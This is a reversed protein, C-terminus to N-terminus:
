LARARLWGAIDPGLPLPEESLIYALFGDLQIITQALAWTMMQLEFLSSYGFRRVLEARKLHKPDQHFLEGHMYAEFAERTSMSIGNSYFHVGRGQALEWNTKVIDLHEHLSPDLRARVVNFVRPFYAEQKALYVLRVDTILRVFTDEPLGEFEERGPGPPGISFSFRQGRHRDLVDHVRAAARRFAVLRRTNDESFADM